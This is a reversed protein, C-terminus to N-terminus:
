LVCFALSFVFICYHVKYLVISFGSILYPFVVVRGASGGGWYQIGNYYTM